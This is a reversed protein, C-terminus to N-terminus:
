LACGQLLATAVSAVVAAVVAIASTAAWRRWWQASERLQQVQIVHHQGTDETWRDTCQELREIRYTNLKVVQAMDSVSGNLRSLEALMRGQADRLDATEEKCAARFAQIIQALEAPPLM